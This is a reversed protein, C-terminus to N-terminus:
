FRPDWLTRSEILDFSPSHLKRDADLENWLQQGEKPM